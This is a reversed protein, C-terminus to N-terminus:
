AVLELLHKLTQESTGTFAGLDFARKMYTKQRTLHGEPIPHGDRKFYRAKIIDEKDIIFIPVCICGKRGIETMLETIGFPTNALVPKDGMGAAEILCPVYRQERGKFDDHELHLYKDKLQAAVWSKGVGPCGILLYIKQM